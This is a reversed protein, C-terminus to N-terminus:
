KVKPGFATKFEAGPDHETRFKYKEGSTYIKVYYSDRGSEVDRLDHRITIKSISNNAVSFNGPTENKVEDISMNKYQESLNLSSVLQAGLKGFFGKGESGAQARADAINENLIKSTLRAFITEEEFVILTYAKNSFGLNKRMRLEPIIAIINEM